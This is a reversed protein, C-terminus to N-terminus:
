LEHKERCIVQIDQKEYDIGGSVLNIRVNFIIQTEYNTINHNYYINQFYLLM